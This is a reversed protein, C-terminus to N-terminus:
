GASLRSAEAINAEIIRADTSGAPVVALLRRWTELADGYRRQEHALSAKLWLAKPHDPDLRLAADIAREPAGALRGDLSAQADAYDAWADATLAGQGAAQAYLECAQRFERRRRHDAARALLDGSDAVMRSRTTATASGRVPADLGLSMQMASALDGSTTARHWGPRTPTVAAQAAGVTGDFGDPREHAWMAASALALGVALGLGFGRCGAASSFCDLTM